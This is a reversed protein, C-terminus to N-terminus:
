RAEISINSKKVLDFISAAPRVGYIKAAKILLEPKLDRKNLEVRALHSQSVGIEKAADNQSYGAMFRLIKLVELGQYVRNM